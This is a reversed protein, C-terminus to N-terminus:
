TAFLPPKLSTQLSWAADRSLLLSAQHLPSLLVGSTRLSVGCFTVDTARLASWRKVATAQHLVGQWWRRVEACIRWSVHPLQKQDYTHLIALIRWFSLKNQQLHMGGRWPLCKWESHTILWSLRSTTSLHVDASRWEKRTKDVGSWSEVAMMAWTSTAKRSERRILWSCFCGVSLCEEQPAVAIPKNKGGDWGAKIAGCARSAM